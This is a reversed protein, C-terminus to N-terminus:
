ELGDLVHDVMFVHIRVVHQIRISPRAHSVLTVAQVYVHIDGMVMRIVLDEMRVLICPVIIM